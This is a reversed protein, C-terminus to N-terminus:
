DVLGGKGLQKLLQTKLLEDVAKRQFVADCYALMQREFATFQESDHWALLADIKDDPILRDKALQTNLHICFDCEQLLSVYLILLRRHAQSIASGQRDVARYFLTVALLMWPSHAWMQTSALVHGYKRKQLYFILRVLLQM